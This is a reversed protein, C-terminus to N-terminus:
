EKKRKAMEDFEALIQGYAKAASNAVDLAYQMQIRNMNALCDYDMGWWISCPLQLVSPNTVDASNAPHGMEDIHIEPM